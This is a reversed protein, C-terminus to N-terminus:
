KAGSTKTNRTVHYWQMKHQNKFNSTQLKIWKMHAWKWPGDTPRYDEPKLNRCRQTAAHVSRRRHSPRRRRSPDTTRWLPLSSAAEVAEVEVRGTLGWRDKTLRLDVQFRFQKESWRLIAWTCVELLHPVIMSVQLLSNSRLPGQVDKRKNTWILYCIFLANNKKLVLM